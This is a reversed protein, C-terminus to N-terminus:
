RRGTYGIGGDGISYGRSTLRNGGGSHHTLTIACGIGRWLAHLDATKKRRTHHEVRLELRQCPGGELLAVRIAAALWACSSPCPSQPCPEPPIGEDDQGALFGFDCRGTVPLRDGHHLHFQDNHKAAGGSEARVTIRSDCFLQSAAELQRKTTSRYGHQMDGPVNVHSDPRLLWFTCGERVVLIQSGVPTPGTPAASM